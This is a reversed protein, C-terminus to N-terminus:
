AVRRVAVRQVATTLGYALLSLVTACAAASWLLNVQFNQMASVILVGLGRPAGFWEGITAGLVAAPAALTLGDLVTPVSKPLQLRLLRRLRNAGLVDFVDDHTSRAGALGLGSSFAVFMVFGAGLGAVVTPTTERGVTTILLPALAIVPVAHLLAALRDLGPRLPPLLLGVCAALAAVVVGAVLGRAASTLTTQAARVVTARRDPDALYSAVETLPPWSPGAIGTRGVLEAGALLVVVGTGALVARRASGTM